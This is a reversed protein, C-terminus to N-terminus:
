TLQFIFSLRVRDDNAQRLQGEMQSLSRTLSSVQMEYENAASVHQIFMSINGKHNWWKAGAGLYRITFCFSTFYSVFKSHIAMFDSVSTLASFPFRAIQICSKYASYSVASTERSL